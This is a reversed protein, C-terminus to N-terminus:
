RDKADAETVIDRAWKILELAYSASIGDAGYQVPTKQTLLRTLSNAAKTSPHTAQKLLSIAQAHDDGSSRLGLVLGCIADSAAIGALIANPNLALGSRASLQLFEQAVPNLHRSLM